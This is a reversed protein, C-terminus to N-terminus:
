RYYILSSCIFILADLNFKEIINLSHAINSAQICAKIFILMCYSFLHNIIILELIEYIIVLPGVAEHVEVCRVAAGARIFTCSLDLAGGLLLGRRLLRVLILELPPFFALFAFLMLWELAWAPLLGLFIGVASSLISLDHTRRTLSALALRGPRLILIFSNAEM